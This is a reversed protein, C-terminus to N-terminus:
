ITGSSIVERQLELEGSEATRRRELVWRKGEEQVYSISDASGSHKHGKSATSGSVSKTLTPSAPASSIELNSIKASAASEESVLSFTSNKRRHNPTMPGNYTWPAALSIPSSTDDIPSRPSGPSSHLSAQSGGWARNRLKMLTHISLDGGYEGEDNMMGALQALGPSNLAGGPLSGHLHLSMVSNRNSYESRETIPTLNPERLAIRGSQSRNIAEAGRPGFYGGNAYQAEGAAPASYFGFEQGYFGECDNALAEANAAAIIADDELADDYDFDDYSPSFPEYSSFDSTDPVLSPHNEEQESPTEKRDFIGNAAAQQAAEALASQYAALTDQTLGKSVMRESISPKPALPGPIHEVMPSLGSDPSEEQTASEQQEVPLAELLQPSYLTGVTHSLKLPRGYQDTDDADFVSEDFDIGGGDVVEDIIGDDFYLDDDDLTAPRPFEEEPNIPVEEESGTDVGRLGLGSMEDQKPSPSGSGSLGPSTTSQPGTHLPSNLNMYPSEKTMAFGIVEGNSDRPTSVMVPSYPSRPSTLDSGLLQHFTFGAVNDKDDLLTLDEEDFKTDAIPIQEELDDTPSDINVGPIAEEYDDDYDANVGPIREELGDDDDMNDYDYEDEDQEDYEDGDHSAIKRLAKERHRDELLKEQEAAGLMDFSFRSSSTSKMHKPLGLLALERASVESVNRSRGKKSQSKELATKPPTSAPDISIRRKEVPLEMGTKPPVPPGIDTASKRNSAKRAPQQLQQPQPPLPPQQEQIMPQQETRPQGNAYPPKPLPLDSLDSAKRVHPGAAPYQEEEFNETFAPTHSGGSWPSSANEEKGLEGNPSRQYHRLPLGGDSSRVDSYSQNRRPRPASFDHVVTGRIRPDFSGGSEGTPTPVNVPALQTVAQSTRRRALLSMPNLLNRVKGSRAQVPEFKSTAAAPPPPTQLRAGNPRRGTPVPRSQDTPSLYTYSEAPKPLPAKDQYRTTPPEFSTFPSAGARGASAPRQGESFIRQHRTYVPAHDPQKDEKRSDRTQSRAADHTSSVPDPNYESFSNKGVFSLGTLPPLTPPPSAASASSRDQPSGDQHNLFTRPPNTPASTAPAHLPSEGWSHSSDPIPSAPSSPTRRHPRLYSFM